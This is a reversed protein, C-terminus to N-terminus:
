SKALPPELHSGTGEEGLPVSNRWVLTAGTDPLREAMCLSDIRKM